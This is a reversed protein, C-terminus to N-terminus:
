KKSKEARWVAIKDQVACSGPGYGAADVVGRFGTHCTGTLFDGKMRATTRYGTCSNTNCLYSGGRQVRKM